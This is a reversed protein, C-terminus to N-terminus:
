IPVIPVRDFLTRRNAYALPTSSLTFISVLTKSIM